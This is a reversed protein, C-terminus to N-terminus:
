LTYPLYEGVTLKISGQTDTGLVQLKKYGTASTLTLSVTICSRMVQLVFFM